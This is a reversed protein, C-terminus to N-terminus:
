FNYKKLYEDIRALTAKSLVLQGNKWAYYGGSSLEIRRCFNAVTVGLEKMFKESRDKLEDM